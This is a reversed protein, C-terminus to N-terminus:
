GANGPGPDTRADSQPFAPVPLGVRYYFITRGRRYRQFRDLVPIVRQPLYFLLLRYAVADDVADHDSQGATASGDRPDHDDEAPGLHQRVGYRTDSFQYPGAGGLGAVLFQSGVPRVRLDSVGPDLYVTEGFAGGPQRAPFVLDPGARPVTRHPDADAGGAAGFM